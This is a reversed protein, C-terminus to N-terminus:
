LLVSNICKEDTDVDQVRVSRFGLCSAFVTAVFYLTRPQSFKFVARGMSSFCSAIYNYLVSSFKILAFSERVLHEQHVICKFALPLVM